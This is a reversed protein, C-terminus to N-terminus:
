FDTTARRPWDRQRQDYQNKRSGTNEDEPTQFGPGGARDTLSCFVQFTEAVIQAGSEDVDRMQLRSDSNVIPRNYILCRRGRLERNKLPLHLDFAFEQM